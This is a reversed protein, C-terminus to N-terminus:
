KKRLRRVALTAGGVLFLVTSVPEPVTTGAFSVNDTIIGWGNENGTLVVKGIGDSNSFGWFLPSASSLYFDSVSYLLSTKDAGYVDITANDPYVDDSGELISLDFGFAPTPNWFEIVLNSGFSLINKSSQGYYDKGNWQIGGEGLYDAGDVVLGPGQDGNNNSYFITSSNLLLYDDAAYSVDAFGDPIDFSEFDENVVSSGLISNLATRDSLVGAHAASAVALLFLVAATLYKM